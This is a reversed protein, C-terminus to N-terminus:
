EWIWLVILRLTSSERAAPDLTGPMKKPNASIETDALQFEEIERPDEM